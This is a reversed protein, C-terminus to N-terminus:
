SGLNRSGKHFRYPLFSILYSWPAWGERGKGRGSQLDIDRTKTKVCGLFWKDEESSQFPMVKEQAVSLEVAEGPLNNWGKIHERWRNKKPIM